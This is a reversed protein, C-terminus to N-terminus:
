LPELCFLDPLHRDHFVTKIPALWYRPSSQYMWAEEAQGDKIELHTGM